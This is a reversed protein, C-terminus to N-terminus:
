KIEKIVFERKRSVLAVIKVIITSDQSPNERLIGYAHKVAAQYTARTCPSNYGDALYEAIEKSGVYFKNIKM